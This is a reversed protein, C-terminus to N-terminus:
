RCCRQAYANEICIGCEERLRKIAERNTMQVLEDWVPIWARFTVVVELPAVPITVKANFSMELQQQYTLVWGAGVHSDGNFADALNALPTFKPAVGYRPAGMVDLTAEIGSQFTYYFDSQPQWLNQNATTSENFIRVVMCDILTDQTIKVDSGVNPINSTSTDPFCARINIDYPALPIGLAKALALRPSGAALMQYVGAALPGMGGDGCGLGLVKPGVALDAGAVRAGLGTPDSGRGGSAAALLKEFQEDTMTVNNV